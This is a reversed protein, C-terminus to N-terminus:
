FIGWELKYPKNNDDTEELFDKLCSLEVFAHTIEDLEEEWGNIEEFCGDIDEKNKCFPLKEREQSIYKEMRGSATQLYEIANSLKDTSFEGFDDFPVNNTNNIAEYILSSRGRELLIVGGKKIIISQSM